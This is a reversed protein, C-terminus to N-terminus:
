TSLSQLKRQTVKISENSTSEFIYVKLVANLKYFIAANCISYKTLPSFYSYRHIAEIAFSDLLKCILTSNVHNYIFVFIMNVKTFRDLTIM